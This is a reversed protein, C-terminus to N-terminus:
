KPLGCGSCPWVVAKKDKNKLDKKYNSQNKMAGVTSKTLQYNTEDSAEYNRSIESTKVLTLNELPIKLIGRRLQSDRLGNVLRDRIREDKHDQAQSCAHEYRCDRRDLGMLATYFAQATEGPQQNRREFVKRDVLVHRKSEVYNELKISLSRSLGCRPGIRM